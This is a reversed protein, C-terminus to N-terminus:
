QRYSPANVALGNSMYNLFYELAKYEDSQAKFPKARVQKNCGGFRRHMTGLNGWKGRFVPFGTPQGLAASLLDARINNGSNYMHCDACSMNLQGRKGYFHQKGREYAALSEASDDIKVSVPEGRSTYAMYASIQAIAGKKWKLPKEGNQVRCENIEQELTKVQKSAPDFYPYFQRINKGGNKFCSAYTKGNAFPTEFLKKGKELEGEYPPFDEQALWQDRKDETTLGLAYNGNAFEKFPTDPFREQYYARFAKLDQDPAANAAIPAIGVALLASLFLTIKKM